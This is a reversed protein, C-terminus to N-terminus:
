GPTPLEITSCRGKLANTGPELGPWGMERNPEDGSHDTKIACPIQSLDGSQRGIVSGAFEREITCPDHKRSIISGSKGM